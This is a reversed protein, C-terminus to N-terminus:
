ATRRKRQQDHANLARAVFVETSGLYTAPDLLDALRREDLLDRVEPRALLMEALPRGSAIAEAAAAAVLDHARLRGLAPALAGAVREALLLGSTAGLNARMRAADVQLHELCDRLWAAASGAAVLLASLPRWEAHWAGAAREHEQPMAALLTAVLGPAQQACALASVAAVPNRKHPLTSSGGRGPTGEWVEAVETQALLVVDKAPKAVAGAAEGLAGALEAVRARNTHWPLVPEVLGLEAALHGAVAVGVDEGGGAGHGGLSALTGAAGGFQVALRTLRVAELRAAAEDLGVLWGAAKLGFTTPLAQQLLTRGALLAGRHAAALAAAADAAGNLDGLLPELARRAVLMAATDLVDQSTAGHHVWGAAPGEVLRTLARVLPVVPNGSAAADEGLKALDIRGGADRCAATIAAADAQPLLGARAEARAIAAEVDLMARLWARDSTAAAVRGRALVGGFLGGPQDSM